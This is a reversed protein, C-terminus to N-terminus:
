SSRRPIKDALLDDCDKQLAAYQAQLAAYREELDRHQDSLEAYQGQLAILAESRRPARAPAEAPEAPPEALQARLQDREAAIPRWYQHIDQLHDAEITTVLMRLEFAAFPLQDPPLMALLRTKISAADNPADTM